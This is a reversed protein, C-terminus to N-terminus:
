LNSVRECVAKSKTDLTPSKINIKSRNGSKDLIKYFQKKYFEFKMEIEPTQIKFSIKDENEKRGVLAHSIEEIDMHSAIYMSEKMSLLQFSHEETQCQYIELVQSAAQIERPLNITSLSLYKDDCHSLFYTTNIVENAVQFTVGVSDKGKIVYANDRNTVKAIQGFFVAVGRYATQVNGKNKMMAMNLEFILELKTPKTLYSWFDEIGEKGELEFLVTEVLERSLKIKTGGLFVGELTEFSCEFSKKIVTTTGTIVSTVVQDAIDGIAADIPNNAKSCGFTLALTTVVLLNTKM